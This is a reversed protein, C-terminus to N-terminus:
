KYIMNVVITSDKDLMFSAKRFNPRNSLGITKFNSFGIGEKPLLLGMKIEGDKNEDHLVSIAYTGATLNSFTTSSRGGSIDSTRIQHYKKFKQDPLSGEQDYLAYQVLGKSNRLGEVKVTLSPNALNTTRGSYISIFLVFSTFSIILINKM